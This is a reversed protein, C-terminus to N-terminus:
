ERLLPEVLAAAMHEITYVGGPSFHNVLFDLGDGMEGIAPFMKDYYGVLKRQRDFLVASNFRGPGKPAKRWCSAIIYIRHQAAKRM